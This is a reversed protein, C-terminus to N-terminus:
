NNLYSQNEELPAILLHFDITVSENELWKTSPLNKTPSTTTSFNRCYELLRQCDRNTVFYDNEQKNWNLVRGTLPM